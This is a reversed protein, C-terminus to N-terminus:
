CTIDFEKPKPPLQLENNNEFNPQPILVYLAQHMAPMPYLHQVITISNCIIGCNTMSLCSADSMTNISNADRCCNADIGEGQVLCRRECTIKKVSMQWSTYGGAYRYKLAAFM